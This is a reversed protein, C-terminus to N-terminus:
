WFLSFLVGGVIFGLSFIFTWYFAQWIISPESKTKDIALLKLKESSFNSQSIAINAAPDIKKTETKKFDTTDPFSKEQKKLVNRIPNDEKYSSSFDQDENLLEEAHTQVLTGTSTPTVVNLGGAMMESGASSAPPSSQVTATLEEKGWVPMQKTVAAMKSSGEKKFSDQRMSNSKPFLKLSLAFLDDHMEQATQYRNNLDRAMAKLIIASLEEPCDLRIKHPPQPDTRLRMTMQEIMNNGKYPAQKAIMEYAIVGVAYIDSRADVQSKELYEPSVYDITGLVGGHETLRPGSGTRAIGFDTIKVDGDNTLLINEPKLDRHIIGAEHIAQVGACIQLLLKLTDKISLHEPSSIKDAMDGGGVFEMTFAILDGDKFYDYARVVNPHNVGYSAVIENKFRAAIIEDRAVESFLVKMAVLHGALERHRCAYVMGMSGTGLCKIVEYRGYVITGPQLNLLYDGSM